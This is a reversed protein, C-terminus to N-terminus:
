KPKCRIDAASRECSESLGDFGRGSAQKKLIQGKVKHQLAQLGSSLAGAQWVSGNLPCVSVVGFYRQWCNRLARVFKGSVSRSLFAWLIKVTKYFIWLPNEKLFSVSALLSAAINLAALQSLKRQAERKQKWCRKQQMKSVAIHMFSYSFSCRCQLKLKAQLSISKSWEVISIRVHWNTELSACACSTTNKAAGAAASAPWCTASRSHFQTVHNLCTLVHERILLGVNRELFLAAILWDCGESIM